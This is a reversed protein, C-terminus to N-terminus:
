SRTPDCLIASLAFLLPLYIISAALLRRAAGRSQQLVFALGFYLFGLGLLVGPWCFIAAHGAPSQMISLPFLALMPLITQLIVFCVRANGKPLVLFGARDYDDRYMWAIAMFHPFQWSFLVSYLIWAEMTL